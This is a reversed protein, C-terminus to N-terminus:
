RPGAGTLQVQEAAATFFNDAVVAHSERTAGCPQRTGQYFLRLAAAHFVRRLRSQSLGPCGPFPPGCSTRGEGGHRSGHCAFIVLEEPRRRLRDLKAVISSHPSARLLFRTRASDPGPSTELGAGICNGLPNHNSSYFWSAACRAPLDVRGLPGAECPPARFPRPAAPLPALRAFGAFRRRPAARFFAGGLQM